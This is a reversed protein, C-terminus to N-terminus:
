RDNALEKLFVTQATRTAWDGILEAALRDFQEDAPWMETVTCALQFALAEPTQGINDHHPHSFAAQERREGETEAALAQGKNM